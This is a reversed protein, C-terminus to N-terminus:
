RSGCLTPGFCVVREGFSVPKRDAQSQARTVSATASCEADVGDFYGFWWASDEWSPACSCAASIPTTISWRCRSLLQPRASLSQGVPVRLARRVHRAAHVQDHMLWGQLLQTEPANTDYAVMALDAARSLAALRLDPEGLQARRRHPLRKGAGRFAAPYYSMLHEIPFDKFFSAPSKACTWIPTTASARAAAGVPRLCRRAAGRERGRKLAPSSRATGGTACWASWSTSPFERCMISCLWRPWLARSRVAPISDDAPPTRWAAKPPAGRTRAAAGREASGPVLRLGAGTAAPRHRRDSRGPSRSSPGRRRQRVGPLLAGPRIGTRAHARQGALFSDFQQWRMRLASASATCCACARPVCSCAPITPPSWM